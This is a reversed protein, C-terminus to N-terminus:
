NEVACRLLALVHRLRKKGAKVVGACKEAQEKAALANGSSGGSLDVALLSAVATCIVIASNSM